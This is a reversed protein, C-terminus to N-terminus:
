PLRVIIVTTKLSAAIAEPINGHIAQKLLSERSAGLVVLDSKKANILDIIASVISHSCIRVPNITTNIDKTLKKIQEEIDGSDVNQENPLFVKTLWISPILNPPYISLLAPLLNLGEQANPGGAMPIICNGLPPIKYPYFQQKKGLKVLILKCPTKNILRDILHSFVAEQHDYSKQWGIILLNIHRQKIIQLIATSRNHAIVIRTHISLNSKHGMRELRQMLHRAPHSNVQYTHPDQHKSIKMVQVFEIEYQYYTAISKAILFLANYDDETTLPVLIRGKGIAPSKTRYCTYISELKFSTDATLEKVEARIIDTRTIIGILKNDEVVPLRSIQYHDLLYLVNSLSASPHLIIPEKTMLDKAIIGPVQKNLKELDSQTLIGVLQNNEMVPFGTHHSQSMKVLLQTIPLNAEITEVNTRMIDGAKLNNLAESQSDKKEDLEIGIGQLIHKYLSGKHITEASLYSVACTIMLPLVLNFNGKLEFVILIATVPVRVVGTFFAGMGVLAYTSEAGTGTIFQEFDGMLYGLASGMVLAPAFLGGSAGSGAAIITLCFHAVFALATAQWSLEGKILIERLGSNDRFFSPLQSIILGSILGVIGIRVYLPIKLRRNLNLSFLLCRNFFAGLIGAIIGLIIYFPIEQATFSINGLDILNQPIEMNPSQLVLSVIAGTFSAVIAVELTLGSIDRMLEEIVFLVGAIPTNFGAALGAAAGAAIMQRRHKPSTPVFRTLEAALAAGIHVTPGRRGLTLGGGLVLITTIIKTLAIKLSLPIPFGALVAKIQAIGGGGASPSIEELLLGALAGFILGFLPLVIVDGWSDALKLRYGGLWGVGQKLLLASLASFIGILCAEILAYRETTSSRGFHKSKFWRNLKSLM